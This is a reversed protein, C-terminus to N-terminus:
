RIPEGEKNQFQTKALLRFRLVRSKTTELLLDKEGLKRLSGDASALTTKVGTSSTEDPSKDGKPHRQPLNIQPVPVNIPIGGPLRVPYNNPYQGPPYQGPPYQGPPYQGPPYQGPYQTPDNPNTQGFGFGCLCLLVAPMRGALM